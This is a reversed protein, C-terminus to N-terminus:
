VFVKSEDMLIDLAQLLRYSIAYQFLGFVYTAEM